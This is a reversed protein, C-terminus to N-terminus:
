WDQWSVKLNYEREFAPELKKQAIYEPDYIKGLGYNM